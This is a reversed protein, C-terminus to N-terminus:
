YHPFNGVACCEMELRGNATVYRILTAGELDSSKDLINSLEVKPMEERPLRKSM